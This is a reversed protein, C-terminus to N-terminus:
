DRGWNIAAEIDETSPIFGGRLKAPKPIKGRQAETAAIGKQLLEVIMVRLKKQEHLARIKVERMLEDPLDLTTKTLPSKCFASKRDVSALGRARGSQSSTCPTDELSSQVSFSM